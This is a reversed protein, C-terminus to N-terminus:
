GVNTTGRLNDIPNCSVMNEGPLLAYGAGLGGQWYFYGSYFIRENLVRLHNPNTGTNTTM